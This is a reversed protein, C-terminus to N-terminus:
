WFLVMGFGSIAFCVVVQAYTLPKQSLFLFCIFVQVLCGPAMSEMRGGVELEGLNVAAAAIQFSGKLM